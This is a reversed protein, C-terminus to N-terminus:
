WRVPNDPDMMHTRNFLDYMRRLTELDSQPISQIDVSMAAHVSALVDKVAQILTARHAVVLEEMCLKTLKPLTISNMYTNCRVEEQVVATEALELYSPVDNESLWKQSAIKYYERTADLFPTEFHEIYVHLSRPQKLATDLKDVDQASAAMGMLEYMQINERLEAKDITEGMRDREIFELICAKVRPNIEVFVQEYFARLSCSTLTPLSNNVVIGRDLHMFLRWMWKTMLKHNSWV